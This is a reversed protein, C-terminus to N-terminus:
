MSSSIMVRAPAPGHRFDQNQRADRLREVIEAKFKQFPQDLFFVLHREGDRFVRDVPLELPDAAPHDGRRELPVAHIRQGFQPQNAFVPPEAPLDTGVDNEGEGDLRVGIAPQRRSGQPNGVQRADGPESGHKEVALRDVPHNAGHQLVPEGFRPADEKLVPGVQFQEPRVPHEFAPHMYNGAGPHVELFAPQQRIRVFVPFDTKEHFRPGTPLLAHRLIQVGGPVDALGMRFTFEMVGSEGFFRRIFGHQPLRVVGPGDNVVAEEVIRRDFRQHTRNVRHHQGGVVLAHGVHEQLSGGIPPRQQGAVYGAAAFRHFRPLGSEEKARLRAFRHRFRDFLKEAAGGFLAPRHSEGPPPQHFFAEVALEGDGGIQLFDPRCKCYIMEFVNLM